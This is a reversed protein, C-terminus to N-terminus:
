TAPLPEPGLTPTDRVAPSQRFGKVTLYVGLSLEWLIEPVTAIGQAAGGPAIVDFLVAIGSAIVLPGGILGLMAM